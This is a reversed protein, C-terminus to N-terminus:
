QQPNEEDQPVTDKPCKDECLCCQKACFKSCRNGNPEGNKGMAACQKMNCPPGAHGPVPCTTPQGAYLEYTKVWGFVIALAIGFLLVFLVRHGNTM